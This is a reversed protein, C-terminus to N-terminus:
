CNKWWNRVANEKFRGNKRRKQAVDKQGNEVKRKKINKIIGYIYIKVLINLSKPM